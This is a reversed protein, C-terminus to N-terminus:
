PLRNLYYFACLLATRLIERFPSVAGFNDVRIHRQTPATVGQNLVNTDVLVQSLYQSAFDRRAVMSSTSFKSSAYNAKM